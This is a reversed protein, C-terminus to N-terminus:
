VIVNIILWVSGIIYVALTAFMGAARFAIPQLFGTLQLYHSIRGVVLLTGLSYLWAPSANGFEMLAILALALPVTEIFNAQGRIKKLLEPDGGDGLLIHNRQRHLGVRLTIPIFFIALLVAYLTTITLPNTM